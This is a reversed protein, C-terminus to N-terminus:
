VSTLMRPPPARFPTQKRPLEHIPTSAFDLRPDTAYGLEVLMLAAVLMVQEDHRTAVYNLAGVILNARQPILNSAVLQGNADEVSDIGKRFPPRFSSLNERVMALPDTKVSSSGGSAANAVTMM